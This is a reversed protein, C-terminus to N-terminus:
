IPLSVVYDEVYAKIKRAIKAGVADMIRSDISVRGSAHRLVAETRDLKFFLVHTFSRRSSLEFSMLSLVAGGEQGPEAVSLQFRAANGTQSERKFVTVWSGGDKNKLGNLTAEVLAYATTGAGLVVSAVSLIARSSEFVDGAERYESFGREQVVWGLNALADFFMEYWQRVDDRSAVQKTAALQALLSCNVILERDRSRLGALFSVINSGVVLSQNENVPRIRESLGGRSRTAHPAPPLEVGDVFASARSVDDLLDNV